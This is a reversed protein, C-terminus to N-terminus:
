AGAAHHPARLAFSGAQLGSALDAATEEITQASSDIVHGELAGLGAFARYLGTVPEPDTLQGGTRLRDELERLGGVPGAAPLRCSGPLLDRQHGDPSRSV